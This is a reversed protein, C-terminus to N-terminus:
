EIFVSQVDTEVFVKLTDMIVTNLLHKEVYLYNFKNYVGKFSFNLSEENNYLNLQDNFRNLDVFGECYTDNYVENFPLRDMSKLFLSDYQREITIDFVPQLFNTSISLNNREGLTIMQFSSESTVGAITQIFYAEGFDYADDIFAYEVSGDSGTIVTDRLCNYRASYIGITAGAIPDNSLTDMVNVDIITLHSDIEERCSFRTFVLFILLLCVIGSGKNLKKFSM